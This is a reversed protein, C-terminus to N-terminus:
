LRPAPMPRPALKRRLALTTAGKNADLEQHWCRPMTPPDVVITVFDHNKAAARIM